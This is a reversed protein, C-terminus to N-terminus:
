LVFVAGAPVYATKYFAEIRSRDIAAISQPTPSSISYPHRVFIVRQFQEGALLSPDQRQVKLSETRNSKYLDIESQAFAPRLIVDGLLALMPEINESIVTFSIAAYDDDSGAGIRGGLTEAESALEQANRSGAGQTLLAATAEALGELGGPDRSDGANVALNGTVIPARHDEVLRLTLGNPLKGTRVAPLVFPRSPAAKPAVERVVPRRQGFVARSQPLPTIALVLLTTTLPAILFTRKPHRTM